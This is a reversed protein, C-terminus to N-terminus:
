PSVTGPDQTVLEIELQSLNGLAKAFVAKLDEFDQGPLLRCDLVADAIEPIINEKVGARLMTPAITIRVLARFLE